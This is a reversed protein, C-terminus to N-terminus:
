LELPLCDCRCKLWFTSPSQARFPCMGTTWRELSAQGSRGASKQGRGEPLDYSWSPQSNLRKAPGMAAQTSSSFGPCTAPLYYDRGCFRFMKVAQLGVDLHASFDLLNLFLTRFFTLSFLTLLVSLPNPSPSSVCRWKLSFPVSLASWAVYWIPHHSWVGLPTRTPGAASNGLLSCCVSPLSGPGGAAHIYVIDLTHASYYSTEM